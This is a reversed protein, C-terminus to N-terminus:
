EVRTLTFTTPNTVTANDQNATNTLILTNGTIKVSYSTWRDGSMARPSKAVTPKMTLKGAKLEITGGQAIFSDVYVDRLQDATMTKPDDTSRPATADVRVISYHGKTFIYQSPQTTKFEKGNPGTTTIADLRWVGAIKQSSAACTLVLIAGITLVFSRITM